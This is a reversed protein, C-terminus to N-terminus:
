ARQSGTPIFTAISTWLAEGDTSLEATVELYEHGRREFRDTVAGTVSVTAPAMACRHSTLRQRTHLLPAPAVTQLALITLNAAMPPYLRGAGRLAHEIGAARWYRDNASASVEYAVPGFCDGVTLGSFPSQSGDATDGTHSNM